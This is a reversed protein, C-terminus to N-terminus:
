PQEPAAPVSEDPAGGSNTRGTPDMQIMGPDAYNYGRTNLTVTDSAFVARKPIPAAVFPKPAECQLQAPNAPAPTMAEPASSERSQNADGAADARGVIAVGGVTFTLSVLLLGFIPILRM